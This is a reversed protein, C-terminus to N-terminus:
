RAAALDFQRARQRNGVVQIDRGAAIAGVARDAGAACDIHATVERQVGAVPLLVAGGQRRKICTTKGDIAAAEQTNGAATAIRRLGVPDGIDIAQLAHAAQGPAILILESAIDVGAAGLVPMVAGAKDGQEIAIFAAKAAHKVAGAMGDGTQMDIRRAVTVGRHAAAQKRLQLAAGQAVQFQRAAAHSALAGDTRQHAVIAAAGDVIHLAAHHHAAASLNASQHPAVAAADAVGAGAAGDGTHSRGDAAVDNDAFRRGTRLDAPQHAAIVAAGANLHRARGTRDAAHALLHASQHAIVIAVDAGSVGGAIHSAAGGSAAQHTAIAAGNGIHVGGAGHAAGLAATLIQRAGIQAAHDAPTDRTAAGRAQVKVARHRAVAELVTRYAGHHPAGISASRDAKGVEVILFGAGIKVLAAGGAEASGAHLLM